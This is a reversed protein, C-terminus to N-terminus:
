YRSLICEIKRLVEIANRLDKTYLTEVGVKEKAVELFCPDGSVLLISYRHEKLLDSFPLVYYEMDKLTEKISANKCIPLKRIFEFLENRERETLSRKKIDTEKKIFLTSITTRRPISAAIKNGNGIQIQLNHIKLRLIEYKFKEFFIPEEFIPLKSQLTEKDINQIKCLLHDSNSLRSLDEKFIPMIGITIEANSILLPFFVHEFEIVNESIKHLVSATDYIIALKHIM